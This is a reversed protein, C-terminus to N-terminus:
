VRCLRQKIVFILAFSSWETITIEALIMTWEKLLFPEKLSEFFNIYCVVTM